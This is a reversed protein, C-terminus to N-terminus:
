ESFPNVPSGLFLLCNATPKEGFLMLDLARTGRQLARAPTPLSPPYHMSLSESLTVIIIISHAINGGHRKSYTHTQGGIGSMENPVHSRPIM